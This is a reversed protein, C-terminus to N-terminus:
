GNLYFCLGAFLQKGLPAPADECAKDHSTADSESPLDSELHHTNTIEPDSSLRVQHAYRGTM